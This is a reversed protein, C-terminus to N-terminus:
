KFTLRRQVVDYDRCRYLYDQKEARLYVYAVDNNAPVDVTILGCEVAGDTVILKHKGPSLKSRKGLLEPKPKGVEHADMDSDNSQIVLAGDVRPPASTMCESKAERPKYECKEKDYTLPAVVDITVTRRPMDLDIMPENSDPNVAAPEGARKAIEGDILIYASSLDISTTVAPAPSKLHLIGPMATLKAVLDNVEKVDPATPALLLYMEYWEIADTIQNARRHVDALNYATSSHPSIEFAKSYLGIATPLDNKADAASAAVFADGAAKAFKDPAKKTKPAAVAVGGLALLAVIALRNM